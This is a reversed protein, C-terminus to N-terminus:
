SASVFSILTLDAHALSVGETFSPWTHPVGEIGDSLFYLCDTETLELGTQDM